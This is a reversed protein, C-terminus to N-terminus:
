RPAAMRRKAAAVTNALLMAITMPGVGGPVPTIARARKEAEVFEVDGVWKKGEIRNTGVDIVVAGEKIWAGRVLHPKGVAAVLVDARHVEEELNATRSHCITVTAHRELLMHAMPKGVMESRGIVVARAGELTVGALDLLRMVGAPTCPRPGAIGAVLRGLNTPHLGDADKDPDIRSLVAAEDLGRPLPLQVIMGDIALDANLGEVAAVVAAQSATAPMRLVESAVGLEAAAKEKNGVYLASAPDDGVLMVALGPPRGLEARIAAVEGKLEARVERALAKGDLIQAM